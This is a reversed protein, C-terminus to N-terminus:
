DESADIIQCMLPNKEWLVFAKQDTWRAGPNCLSLDFRHLVKSMILRMEHMAMSQGICSRSGYGFPQFSEKKDEQYKADSGLWREPDFVDPNHFNEASHYTSWHHVSVRTGGAVWGGLINQGAEHVVRPM